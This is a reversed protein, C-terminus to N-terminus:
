SRLKWECAGDYLPMAESPMGLYDVAYAAFAKWETMLGMTKLRIELLGLDITEKYTWLLRCWDCIQRAGLGGKYFHKIFHTFVVLADENEEATGVFQLVIEKPAKIDKVHDLGAAVM